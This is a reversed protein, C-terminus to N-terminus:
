LFEQETAISSGGLIWLLRQRKQVPQQGRLVKELHAGCELGQGSYRADTRWGGIYENDQVRM